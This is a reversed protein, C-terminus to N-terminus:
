TLPRFRRPDNLKIQPGLTKKYPVGAARPCWEVRRPGDTKAVFFQMQLIIWFEPAVFAHVQGAGNGRVKPLQGEQFFQYDRAVFQCARDRGLQAQESM